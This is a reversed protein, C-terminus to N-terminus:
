QFREGVRSACGVSYAERNLNYFQSVGDVYRGETFSV